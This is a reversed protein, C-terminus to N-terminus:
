PVRSDITLEVAAADRTAVPSVTGQLDGSAPMANGSKSIRAGVTVRDFKSIVMAPSMALSDDLTVTVPLDVVQKRVIALPMRPGSEARAFIFVTDGPDAQAALAPDLTVSVQIAAATAPPAAAAPAGAAATPVTEAVPLGLQRQVSAIQEAIIRADEGTQPLLKAARQWYGLAEEYAAQQNKWHGMLWLAKVNDPDGALAKELLVGAEDSFRGGRAMALADAYDALLAPTDGGLRLINRYAELAEEYRKLVVYSRALMVWGKLDDPQTQLRQALGAVMEEVSPQGEPRPSAAPRPATQMQALLPIIEGSGLLNYLGAALLPIAAILVLAAWRGSRAPRFAKGQGGGSLDELLERELDSRATAYQDSSLRGTQLDTELDALQQRIIETNLADPDTGSQGSRAGRFLAPLVFLLAIMILVAALSWFVTM